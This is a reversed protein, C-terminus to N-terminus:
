AAVPMRGALSQLLNMAILEPKLIGRWDTVRGGRWELVVRGSEVRYRGRFVSKGVSVQIPEWMM